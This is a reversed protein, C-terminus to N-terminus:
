FTVAATTSGNCVTQNAVVNVTATPNVTITFTTSGGGCANANTTVTITGSIPAATANTAIFSPINGTGSAALGIATNSNTWSFTTAATSGTFNVPATASGACVVQNAVGDVTPRPNVTITFTVPTGSCSLGNATYVPTVTITA